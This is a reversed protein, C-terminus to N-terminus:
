TYEGLPPFGRAPSTDRSSECSTNRSCGQSMSPRPIRSSRALTCCSPNWLLHLLKIFVSFSVFRWNCETLTIMVNDAGPPEDHPSGGGLGWQSAHQCCPLTQTFVRNHGVSRFATPNQIFPFYCGFTLFSFFAKWLALWSICPWFGKLFRDTKVAKAFKEVLHYFVLAMKM